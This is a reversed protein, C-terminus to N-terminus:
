LLVAVVGSAIADQAAGGVAAAGGQHDIGEASFLMLVTGRAGVQPVGVVVEQAAAQDSVQIGVAGVEQEGIRGAADERIDAPRRSTGGDLGVLHKPGVTIRPCALAGEVGSLAKGPLVVIAQRPQIVVDRAVIVRHSADEERGILRLPVHLAHVGVAVHSAVGLRLAIGRALGIDILLIALIH